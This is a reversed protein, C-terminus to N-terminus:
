SLMKLVETRSPGPAIWPDRSAAETIKRALGPRTMIEQPPALMAIMELYARFVDADWTMAALLDRLPAGALDPADHSPSRGEIVAAIQAIRQNDLYVTNRYWPLLRQRTLRDYELALTFPDKVHDAVAEAVIAAHMLGLTMGRSPSPNTCAWADGVSLVGTAVPVGARVVARIRNVVGSAALVTTVPEGREVLHAHLACQGVLRTWHREDRLKRLARDRAHIAVTVSWTGADAPTTLVSYCDFSTIAGALPAPPEEGPCARFFRSYYTFGADEAREAVEYLGAADLWVPLPSGRGMADIVLDAHLETQDQLRVGTVQRSRTTLLGVVRAGRRVEALTGAASAMAHEVVPRRATRTLFKGDDPRPTRDTIGPPLPSLMTHRVAGASELASVVEPLHEGLVRLGAPLLYHPQRFQMVGHRTWHDWAEPPTNPPPAPDRELVTVDHGQKAVMLATALGILGGGIVVIRAM